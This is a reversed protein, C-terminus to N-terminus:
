TAQGGGATAGRQQAVAQQWAAQLTRLLSATERLPQLENGLNAATMRELMYLYLSELNVALEGGAQVDLSTLFESVIDHARLIHRGKEAVDGRALAEAARELADIAGQYLLLLVDAPDTTEIQNHRYAQVCRAHNM